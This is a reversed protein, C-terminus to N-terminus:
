SSNNNKWTLTRSDNPQTETLKGNKSGNDVDMIDNKPIAEPTGMVPMYKSLNPYSYINVSKTKHPTYNSM